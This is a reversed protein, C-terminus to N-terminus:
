MCKKLRQLILQEIPCNRGQPIWKTEFVAPDIVEYQREVTIPQVFSAGGSLAKTPQPLDELEKFVTIQVFYGGDEAPQILVIARNRITQFTALLREHCDPNGTKWFQEFGPAVRPFTEIRGDYRNAYSIEFYDDLIDITKEFVKGYSEPGLPVYVPNDVNCDPDPRIIAPNEILPGTATCGTFLSAALALWNWKCSTRM